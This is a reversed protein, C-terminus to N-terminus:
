LPNAFEDLYIAAHCEILRKLDGARARDEGSVRRYRRADVSEWTFEDLLVETAAIGSDTYRDVLHEFQACLRIVPPVGGHEVHGDHSKTKALAGVAHAQQM